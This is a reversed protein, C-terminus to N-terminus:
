LNKFYEINRLDNRLNNGVKPTEFALSIDSNESLKELKNKIWTCDINGEDLNLHEDQENDYFGGSLHFYSPKLISLLNSLFDKYNIKESAASKIAHGFDLCINLGCEDKIFILQDLSHGFCLENNLGVKPKNEILLRDDAILKINKKFILKDEGVGAHVIINKANLLDATKVVQEKFFNVGAQNVTFINFGHSSHPAHIQMEVNKFKKVSEPIKDPVLYLEIFDIKGREYLRVAETFYRENISWIKIGYKIM